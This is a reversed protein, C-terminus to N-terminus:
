VTKMQASVDGKGDLYTHGCIKVAVSPPTLYQVTLVLTGTAGKNCGSESSALVM